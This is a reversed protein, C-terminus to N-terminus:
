KPFTQASLQRLAEESFNDILGDKIKYKIKQDEYIHSAVYYSALSLRRKNFEISLKNLPIELKYNKFLTLYFVELQKKEFNFIVKTTVSEFSFYIMAILGLIVKIKWQSHNHNKEFHLFHFALILIVIISFVKLYNLRSNTSKPFYAIENM